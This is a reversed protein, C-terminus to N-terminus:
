RWRLASLPLSITLALPSRVEPLLHINGDYLGLAVLTSSHAMAVVPVPTSAFSAAKINGAGAATYVHVGGDSTAALLRHPDSSSKALGELAFVPHSAGEIVEAQVISLISLVSHASM